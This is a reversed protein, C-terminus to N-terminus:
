RFISVHGTVPASQTSGTQTQSSGTQMINKQTSPLVITQNITRDVGLPKRNIDGLESDFICPM